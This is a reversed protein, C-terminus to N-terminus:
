FREGQKAAKELERFADHEKQTLEELPLGYKDVPGTRREGRDNMGCKLCYGDNDLLMNLEGKESKCRSCRPIGGVDVQAEIEGRDPLVALVHDLRCELREEKNWTFLRGTEVYVRKGVLDAFEKNYQGAPCTRLRGSVWIQYLRGDDIWLTIDTVIGIKGRYSKIADPLVLGGLDQLRSEPKIFCHGQRPRINETM